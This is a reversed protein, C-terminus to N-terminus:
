SYNNGYHAQFGDRILLQGVLRNWIRTTGRGAGNPARALSPATVELTHTQESHHGISKGSQQGDCVSRKETQSGASSARSISDHRAKM